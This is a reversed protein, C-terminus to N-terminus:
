RSKNNFRKEDKEEQIKKNCHLKKSTRNYLDFLLKVDCNNKAHTANKM